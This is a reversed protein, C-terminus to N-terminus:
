VAQSRIIKNKSIKGRVVAAIQQDGLYIRIIRINERAEPIKIKEFLNIRQTTIRLEESLLKQQYELIEVEIALTAFEKLVEVARDVWFPMYFLNYPVNTFELDEFVPIDIGAINNTGTRLEKASILAELDVQEAFVAVWKMIASHLNEYVETKKDLSAEIKRLEMQIQQKKLTLTPLYRMFRKLSERQSKLENKSLKIKAM